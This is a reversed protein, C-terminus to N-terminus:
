GMTADQFRMTGDPLPGSWHLKKNAGYNSVEDYLPITTAQKYIIESIQAYIKDRASKDFAAQGKRILSDMQATHWYLARGKSYYFVGFVSMSDGTSARNGSYILGAKGSLYLNFEATSEMIRVKTPIGVKTLYGAIAQAVDTNYPQRSQGVVLTQPPFKGDSYGAEALLQKAKVPDYPYPTLSRSYGANLPSNQIAIRKGSGGIVKRIIANIDVAYNLARRVRVDDFPKKFTNISIFDTYNQEATIVKLSPDAKLAPVDTYLIQEALDARDSLLMAKRTAADPVKLYTITSIKPAGGWYNKNAVEKISSGIRWSVFKYPGSGVPKKAFAANGESNILKMPVIRLLTMFAPVTAYPTSTLIDVTHSNVVKAGSLGPLLASEPSKNSPKLIRDLSYKVDAATLPDGNSFKVDTRMKFRWTTPNVTKWSTAVSPGVSRDPNLVTLTDFLNSMEPDVYSTLMPDLSPGYPVEAMAITLDSNAASSTSGSGSTTCGVAALVAVAAVAGFKTRM